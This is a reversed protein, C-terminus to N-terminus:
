RFEGSEILLKVRPLSSTGFINTLRLRVATRTIGLHDAIRPVTLGQVLLNLLQQRKLETKTLQRPPVPADPGLRFHSNLLQSRDQQNLIALEHRAVESYPPERDYVVSRVVERLDPLSYGLAKLEDVRAQAKTGWGIRKTVDGITSGVYFVTSTRPDRLIYINLLWVRHNYTALPTM